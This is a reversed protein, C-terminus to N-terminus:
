ISPCLQGPWCWHISWCGTLEHWGFKSAPDGTTGDLELASITRCCNVCFLWTNKSKELNSPSLEVDDDLPDPSIPIISAMRSDFLDSQFRVPFIANTKTPARDMKKAETSSTWKYTEGFRVHNGVGTILNTHKFKFFFLSKSCNQVSKPTGDRNCRM